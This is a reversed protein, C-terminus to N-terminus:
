LRVEQAKQLRFKTSGKIIYIEDNDTEYVLQVRHAHTGAFKSLESANLLTVTTFTEWAGNINGQYSSNTSNYIIKQTSLTAVSTAEEQDIAPMVNGTPTLTQNLQQTLSEFYNSWSSHFNTTDPEYITSM